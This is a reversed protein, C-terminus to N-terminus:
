EGFLEIAKLINSVSSTTEPFIENVMKMVDPNNDYLFRGYQAFTEKSLKYTNEWYDNKHGYGLKVKGNTMGNIIDSVGRYEEKLRGKKEFAEPYKSYLMDEISLGTKEASKLLNEYDKKISEDLMKGKTIGNDKDIKHFLEHAVTSPPINNLLYVKNEKGSFYSHQRQSKEFEVNKITRQLLSRVTNNEINSINKSFKDIINLYNNGTLKNKANNFFKGVKEDSRSVSSYAVRGYNQERFYQRQQGTQNIFDRMKAQKDSVDSKSYALAKQMVEKLEGSSESVATQYAVKERKASRIEREMKRQIQSIEYESYMKNNYEICKANMQKLMKDNYNRTSIGEFYPYWDHQCNYGGFGAGTGYGIDDKNLYGKRGSLSVIQGQWEAHSPRAGSHASIEMLDCGMEIANTEGIERCTQGVGTLVARRVAVDLRDIHGSPYSVTPGQQAATQIAQKIAEQYSFAGSTIKMYANNCASIYANQSTNATTLTLNKMNGLTKKYGANLVQMMAPSQRIDVPVLGAQRYIGADYQVTRVGADEFLARVHADTANTRRGIESIIDDYLLGMEQAQKIQWKATETVTGTKIIRRTIDAIIAEDLQAYLEIIDDACDEYYDPTLM